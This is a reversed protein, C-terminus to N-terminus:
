YFLLVYSNMNIKYIIHVYWVDIQKAINTGYRFLEETIDKKKVFGFRQSRKYWLLLIFLPSSYVKKKSEFLIYNM